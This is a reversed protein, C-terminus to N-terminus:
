RTLCADAGRAAPAELERVAHDLRRGEHGHAGVARDLRHRGLLEFPEARVDHEAVGKVQHQPGPLSIMRACPPRCPKMCQCRGIRVSEPPKWTNLRSLRRLIVSSPTCNREGMSPLATRRVGSSEISTCSASPESMAIASSSQVGYGAVSACARSDISREIRQARACGRESSRRRCCAVDPEVRRGALQEADHLAAHMQRQAQGRELREDFSGQFPRATPPRATPSGSSSRSRTSSPRTGCM